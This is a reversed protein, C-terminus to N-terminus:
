DAHRKEQLFKAIPVDAPALDLTLIEESLLWRIEDHATLQFQYDLLDVKIAKLLFEGHYYHYLSEVLVEGAVSRVGLEELLERELCEQLSEGPEVKGGPFEWSGALKQDAARRAILFKGNREVVAATVIKM